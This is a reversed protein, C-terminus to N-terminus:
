LIKREQESPENTSGVFREIECRKKKPSAKKRGGLELKWGFDMGKSPRGM